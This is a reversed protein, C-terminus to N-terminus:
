APRAPGAAVQKSPLRRSRNLAVIAAQSVNMNHDCGVASEEGGGVEVRLASGKRQHPVRGRHWPSPLSRSCGLAINGRLRPAATSHSAVNCIAPAVDTHLAPLQSNVSWCGRSQAERVSPTSSRLLAPATFSFQVMWKRRRTADVLWGIRGVQLM